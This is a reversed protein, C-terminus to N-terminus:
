VLGKFEGFLELAALQYTAAAEQKTEFYGLNSQTGNHGIRACWKRSPKYWYVGRVGSTNDKHLKTQNSVNQQRTALRLNQRRNDHRTGNKHDVEEGVQLQRGLMRALILRHMYILKGQGPQGRPSHRVIYGKTLSYWKIELLDCDCLSLIIEPNKM